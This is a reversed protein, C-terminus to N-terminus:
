ETKSTSQDSSDRKKQHKLLLLDVEETDEDIERSFGIDAADGCAKQLVLLMYPMFDIEDVMARKFMPADTIGYKKCKQVATETLIESVRLINEAGGKERISLEPLVCPGFEDQIKFLAYGDYLFYYETDNIEASTGRAAGIMVVKLDKKEEM